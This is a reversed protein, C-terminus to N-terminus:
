KVHSSISVSEKLNGRNSFSEKAFCYKRQVFHVVTVNFTVAFYRLCIIGNINKLAEQIIDPLIKKSIAAPNRNLLFMQGM